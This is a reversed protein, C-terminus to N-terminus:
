FYNCYQGFYYFRYESDLYDDELYIKRNKNNRTREIFKEVQVAILPSLLVAAITIIDKNDM